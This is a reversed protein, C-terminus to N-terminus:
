AFLSFLENKIKAEVSTKEAATARLAFSGHFQPFIFLGHIYSPVRTVLKLGHEEALELATMETLTKSIACPAM